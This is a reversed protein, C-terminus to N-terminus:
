QEQEEVYKYWASMVQAKLEPPLSSNQIKNVTLQPDDLTGFRTIIDQVLFQEQSLGKGTEVNEIAQLVKSSIQDRVMELMRPEDNFIVSALYNQEEIWAGRLLRLQDDPLKDDHLMRNRELLQTFYTNAFETAEQLMEQQSREARRIIYEERLRYYDARDTSQIGFFRFAQREFDNMSEQSINGGGSVYGDAADHMLLMYERRYQSVMTALGKERIYEWRTEFDIGEVNNVDAMALTMTDWILQGVESAKVGPSAFLLDITSKMSPNTFVEMFANVAFSGGGLPAFRESVELSVDDDSSIFNIAHNILSETLLGRLFAQTTPDFYLKEFQSREEPNVPADKLVADNMMNLLKDGYPVGVMGYLLFQGAVIGSKEGKSWVRSGGFLEPLVTKTMKWPFSTLQFVTKFLGRQLGFAREPTMSGTIERVRGALDDMYRASSLKATGKAKDAFYFALATIQQNIKESEVFPIEAIRMGREGSAAALNSVKVARRRLEGGLMGRRTEKARRMAMDVTQNRTTQRMANYSDVADYLGKNELSKILSGLENAELGVLKSIAKIRVSNLGLKRGTLLAGMLAHTGYAKALSIPHLGALLLPQAFQLALQATVNSSVVAMHLLRMAANVVGIGGSLAIDAATSAAGRVVGTGRMNKSALYAATRSFAEELGTFITEGMISFTDPLGRLMNSHSLVAAAQDAEKIFGRDRLTRVLAENVESVDIDPARARVSNAVRQTLQTITDGKTVTHSVADVARIMAAVPDLYDDLIIDPSGNILKNANREGFVYGGLNDIINSAIFGAEGVSKQSSDLIPDGISFKSFQPDARLQAVLKAADSSTAAHGLLARDLVGDVMRTGVIVYQGTTVKTFYGPIYNIIGRGSIPRVTAKGTVLAYRTDGIPTRMRMLTGGSDLANQMDTPNLSEVANREVNFVKTTKEPAAVRQGFGVRGASGWVEEFGERIYLDRVYKDAVRYVVDTGERFKFFANAMKNSVSFGLQTGAEELDKKTIQGGKNYFHRILQSVEYQNGGALNQAEEFKALMMRKLPREADGRANLVISWQRDFIDSMTGLPAFEGTRFKWWMRTFFGPTIARDGFMLSKNFDTLTELKMEGRVSFYYKGGVEDAVADVLRGGDKSEYSLIRIPAKNGFLQVAAQRADNISGFADAETRGFVGAIELGYDNEVIRPTITSNALMLQAPRATTSTGLRTRLAALGVEREADMLIPRNILGEMRAIATENAEDLARSVNIASNVRSRGEVTPLIADLLDEPADGSTLRTPQGEVLTEAVDRGVTGPAVTNARTLRNSVARYGFKSLKFADGVLTLDLVDVLNSVFDSGAEAYPTITATRELESIKEEIAALEAKNRNVLWEDTGLQPANDILNRLVNRERHLKDAAENLMQVNFETNAFRDAVISPFVKDLVYVANANNVDSFTGSNTKLVDLVAKTRREWAQRAEPTGESYTGDLNPIIGAEMADIEMKEGVLRLLSAPILASPVLAVSKLATADLEVADAIEYALPQTTLPIISGGIDSARINKQYKLAEQQITTLLDEYRQYSDDAGTAAGTEPIPHRPVNEMAAAAQLMYENAQYEPVTSAEHESFRAMAGRMVINADYRNRRALANVLEIRADLSLNPNSAAEILTQKRVEEEEGELSAIVDKAAQEFITPTWVNSPVVAGSAASLLEAGSAYQEPSMPTEYRPVIQPPYEGEQQPPLMSFDEEVPYPPSLFQSVPPIPGNDMPPQQVPTTTDTTNIM